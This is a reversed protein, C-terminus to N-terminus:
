SYSFQIIQETADEASFPKTLECDSCKSRTWKSVAEIHVKMENQEGKSSSISERTLYNGSNMQTPSIAIIPRKAWIYEYTKSPIYLRCIEGTGHILILFDAKRM